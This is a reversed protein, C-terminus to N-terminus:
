DRLADGAASVAQGCRLFAAHGDSFRRAYRAAMFGGRSKPPNMKLLGHKDFVLETRANGVYVDITLQLVEPMADAEVASALLPNDRDGPDSAKVTTGRSKVRIETLRVDPAILGSKKEVCHSLVTHSFTEYGLDAVGFGSELTVDPFVSRLLLLLEMDDRSSKCGVWLLGKDVLLIVPHVKRKPQVSKLLEPKLKAEISRRRAPRIRGRPLNLKMRCHDEVADALTTKAVKRTEERLWMRVLGHDVAYAADGMGAQINGTWPSEPRCWGLLRPQSRDPEDPWRRSVACALLDPPLTKVRFFRGAYASHLLRLSDSM